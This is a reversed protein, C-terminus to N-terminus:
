YLDQLARRHASFSSSWRPPPRTRSNLQTRHVALDVDHHLATTPRHSRHHVASATVSRPPRPVEFECGLIVAVYGETSHCHSYQLWLGEADTRSALGLRVAVSMCHPLLTYTPRRLETNPPDATPLRPRSPRAGIPPPFATRTNRHVLISVRRPPSARTICHQLATHVANDMPAM